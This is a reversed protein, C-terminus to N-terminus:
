KEDQKEESVNEKQKKNKNLIEHDGLVNGGVFASYVAGIAILLSNIVGEQMPCTKLIVILLIIFLWTLSYLVTVFKKSTLASVIQKILQEKM